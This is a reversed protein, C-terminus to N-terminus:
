SDYSEPGGLFELISCSIPIFIIMNVEWRRSGWPDFSRSSIEPGISAVNVCQFTNRFAIFWLKWVWGLVGFNFLFYTYFCDYESGMEQVLFTFESISNCSSYQGCKCMSLHEQFSYIMAKMGVWSSWFQAPFPYLLFWMWKGDGGAGLILVGFHFQLAGVPWM